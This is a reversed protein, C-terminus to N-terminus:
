RRSDVLSRAFCRLLESRMRVPSSRRLAPARAARLPQARRPRQRALSASLRRRERCGPIRTLDGAAHLPVRRLCQALGGAVIGGPLAIQLARLELALTERTLHDRSAEAAEILADDGSLSLRIRDEM